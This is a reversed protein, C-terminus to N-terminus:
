SRNVSMLTLQLVQEDASHVLTSFPPLQLEPLSKEVYSSNRVSTASTITWHRVHGERDVTLTITVAGYEPLKLQQQLYHTILSRYSEVATASVEGSMSPLEMSVPTLPSALPTATTAAGGGVKAAAAIKSQAEAILQQRASTSPAATSPAAKKSTVTERPPENKVKVPTTPASKAVVSVPSSVPPVPPTPKSVVKSLEQSSKTHTTVAEKQHSPASVPAPTPTTALSVMRVTLSKPPHWRGLEGMMAYMWGLLLIHAIIVVAAIKKYTERPDTIRATKM